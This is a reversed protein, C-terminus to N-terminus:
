HQHYRRKRQMIEAKGGMMDLINADHKHGPLPFNCSKSTHGKNFGLGHSWCYFVEVVGDAKTVPAAKVDAPPTNEKQAANAKHFGAQATTLERLRAKNARNFHEKFQAYTQGDDKREWESIYTTMVGSASLAELTLVMLTADTVPNISHRAFDQCDKNRAWLTTLDDDPNWAAKIKERNEELDQPKIKGYTLNLYTMIGRTNVRAFGFRSDKLAILYDEEIAELIGAKLKSDTSHYTKYEELRYSYVQDASHIQANSANAGHVPMDGPHLPIIFPQGAEATYVDGHLVCAAHGMQGGGRLSRVSMANALLELTLSRIAQPTPKGIIPTLTPHPFSTFDAM